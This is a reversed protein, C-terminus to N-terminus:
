PCFPIKPWLRMNKSSADTNKGSALGSGSTNSKRSFKRSVRSAELGPEMSSSTLSILRRPSRPNWGEKLRQGHQPCPNAELGSTNKEGSNPPATWLLQTSYLGTTSLLMLGAVNAAKRCPRFASERSTPLILNLLLASFSIRSLRDAKTRHKLPSSM